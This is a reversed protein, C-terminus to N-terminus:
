VGIGDDQPKVVRGEYAEVDGRERIWADRMRPLGKNADAHYGADGWQGATDYVRVPDNPVEGASNPLQTASLQIERM